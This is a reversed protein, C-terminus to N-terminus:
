IVCKMTVFNESQSILCKLFRSTLAFCQKNLKSKNESPKIKEPKPLPFTSWDGAILHIIEQLFIQLTPRPQNSITSSTIQVKRCFIWSVFNNQVLQAVVFSFIRSVFLVDSKITLIQADNRHWCVINISTPRVKSCLVLYLSTVKSFWSKLCTISPIKWKIISADLLLVHFRKTLPKHEEEIVSIWIKM